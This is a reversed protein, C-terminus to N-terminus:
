SIEKLYCENSDINIKKFKMIKLFQIHNKNIVGKYVIKKVGKSKLYENEKDFIFRGVKYDRYKPVTYNIKVYAIGESTYKAVFINAFALDRLVIFRLENEKDQLSFDPFFTYIDKQYYSFYKQILSDDPLFEILDFDEDTNYIKILYYINICLLFSNTIIIPLADIMLGYLIFSLSGLSNLWRFRIENNVLLSVALLIFAIYGLIVPLTEKIEM